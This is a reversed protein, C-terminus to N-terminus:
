GNRWADEPAPQGKLWAFAEDIHKESVGLIQLSENILSYLAILWSRALDANGSDQIGLIPLLHGRHLANLCPEMSHLEVSWWESHVVGSELQYAHRYLDALDCEDAMARLSKGAFNAGLDVVRHDVGEDNHSATRMAAVAEQVGPVLWGDPLDENLLAHLKAKGAGYEKYRRYITAQDQLAMWNLLIQVEVIMRGIHAGHESSWTSENGLAVVVARAARIVLGTNVEEREPDHLRSPMSSIAEMYSATLDMARQKFDAPELRPRDSSPRPTEDETSLEVGAGTGDGRRVCQTTMSNTGWFVKAWGTSASWYNGDSQTRLQRMATWMARVAGDARPRNAANSPYDHLLEVADKGVSLSATRVGAWIGLCKVLAERHEDSLVGLVAASLRDIDPQSPAHFPGTLWAAPRHPYSALVSQVGPSLLGLASARDRLLTAISEDIKGMRELGTLRGDLCEALLSAPVRDGLDEVVAAQWKAFRSIGVEGTESLVLIPWLLDPLDDRVWDGLTLDAAAVLPPLFKRGKRTHDSLVNDPREGGSPGM